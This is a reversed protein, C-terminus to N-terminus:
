HLRGILTALARAGMKARPGTLDTQLGPVIMRVVSIGFANKL